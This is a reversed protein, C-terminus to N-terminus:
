IDTNYRSQSILLVAELFTAHLYASLYYLTTDPSIILTRRVTDHEADLSVELEMAPAARGYRRRLQARVERWPVRGYESGKPFYLADNIALMTRAQDSDIYSCMWPMRCGNRLKRMTNAMHTPLSPDVSACPEFVTDEPLYRDIVSLPINYRPDDLVARIRQVLHHNFRDWDTEQLNWLPICFRFAPLAAVVTDVGGMYALGAYWCDLPDPPTPAKACKWGMTQQLPATCFLKM